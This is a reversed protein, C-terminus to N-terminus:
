KEVRSRKRGALENENAEDQESEDADEDEEQVSQLFRNPVDENGDNCFNRSDFYEQVVSIFFSSNYELISSTTDLDCSMAIALEELRAIFDEYSVSDEHRIVHTSLTRLEKSEENSLSIIAVGLPSNTQSADACTLLLIASFDNKQHWSLALETDTQHNTEEVTKRKPSRPSKNLLACIDESDDFKALQLAYSATDEESRKSICISYIAAKIASQQDMKLRLVSSKCDNTPESLSLGAVSFYGEAVGEETKEEFPESPSSNEFPSKPNDHEKKTSALLEASSSENSLKARKTTAKKKATYCERTAEAAAIVEVISPCEPFLMALLKVSAKHKSERKTAGTGTNVIQYTIIEEQDFVSDTGATLPPLVDCDSEPNRLLRAPSETAQSAFSDKRKRSQEHTAGVAKQPLEAPPKSQLHELPSEWHDMISDKKDVLRKPFGLGLSATCHFPLRHATTEAQLFEYVYKPPERIRYDIQWMAHLLTSCVRAEDSSRYANEDEDFESASSASPYIGLNGNTELGGNSSPRLLGGLSVRVQESKSKTMSVATSISSDESIDPSSPRSQNTNAAAAPPAYNASVGIALQSALHPALEELSTPVSRSNEDIIRLLGSGIDTLIGNPDFVVSPPVISITNDCAFFLLCM